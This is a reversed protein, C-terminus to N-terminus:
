SPPDWPASRRSSPRVPVGRVSSRRTLRAAVDREARCRDFDLPQRRLEVALRDFAPESIRERGVAARRPEVGREIRRLDVEVARKSEGAVREGAGGDVNGRSIAHLEVEAARGIRADLRLAGVGVELEAGAPEVDLVERDGIEAARDDIRLAM